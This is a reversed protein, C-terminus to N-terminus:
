HLPPFFLPSLPVSAGLVGHDFHFDSSPLVSSPGTPLFFFPPRAAHSPGWHWYLSALDIQLLTPFFFFFRLPLPCAFRWLVRVRPCDLTLFLMPGHHPFPSLVVDGKSLLDGNLLTCWYCSFPTHSVELATWVPFCFKKPGVRQTPLGFRSITSRFGAESRLSPVFASIFCLLPPPPHQV